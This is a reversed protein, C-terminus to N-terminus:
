YNSNLLGLLQLVSYFNYFFKISGISPLNEKSSNTYSPDILRMNGLEQVQDTVGVTQIRQQSPSYTKSKGMSLNLGVNGVKDVQHHQDLQEAKRSKRVRKKRYWTCNQVKPKTIVKQVPPVTLGAKVCEPCYCKRTCVPCKWNLTPLNASKAKSYKYRSTLCKRCYLLKCCMNRCSVLCETPFDCKCSHCRRKIIIGEKHNFNSEENKEM